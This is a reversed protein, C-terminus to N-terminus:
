LRRATGRYALSAMTAVGQRFGIALNQDVSHDFARVMGFDSSCTWGQASFTGSTSFRNGGSPDDPRRTIRVKVEGGHVGVAGFDNPDYPQSPFWLKQGSLDGLVLFPSYECAVGGAMNVAWEVEMTEGVALFNKPLTFTAYIHEGVASLTPSDALLTWLTGPGGARFFRRWANIADDQTLGALERIASFLGRQHRFIEKLEEASPTTAFASGLIQSRLEPFGLAVGTAFNAGDMVQSPSELDGDASYVNYPQPYEGSGLVDEGFSPREIIIPTGAFPSNQEASAQNPFCLGVILDRLKPDVLRQWDGSEAIRRATELADGATRKVSRIESRNDATRQMLREAGVFVMSTNVVSGTSM